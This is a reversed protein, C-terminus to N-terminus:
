RASNTSPASTVVMSLRSVRSLSLGTCSANMSAPAKWHPKQVGPKMSIPRLQEVLMGVRVVVLDLVIEGAIQAAAGGIRLDDLRHLEGRLFACPRRRRSSGLTGRQSCAILHPEMVAARRARHLDFGVHQHDAGARGAHIGRDLRRAGAAAHEQDVAAQDAAAARGHHRLHRDRHREAGLRGVVPAMVILVREGGAAPEAVLRQRAQKALFARGADPLHIGPADAPRALVALDGRGERRAVVPRAADIDIEEVGAGRHRLRQAAHDVLSGADGALAVEADDIEHLTSPSTVPATAHCTSLPAGTTIEALAVM